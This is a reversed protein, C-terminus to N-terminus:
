IYKISIPSRVSHKISNWVIAGEVFQNSGASQDVPIFTVKYSLRQNVASFVLRSPSVKVRMCPSIIVKVTYCSHADGVNTVTRTFSKTMNGSMTIAFAPYNLEAEPNSSVNSCSVQKQVITTVQANSYGLGCLYPIYDDAQIDYILGPNNAKCPNVHGAGVAFLSAPLEREDQIPQYNLNIVDATTMIASKIAAPSWDPHASKLLTAIGSLHPCSMSTGSIVNFPATTTTITTTSDAYTPWAALISVGPGIIDPKLIGPSALNPGRSSFSSVQPASKYGIVTGRFIITAVPSATSNMYNLIALAQKYDVYSAPLVHTDALISSGDIRANVLIMAAGGAGKVEQGKAVRPIGGGKLCIVVKGKVDTNNLSGPACFMANKSRNLGPYVLPLLSKTFNKPQFVSEGDLLVNNGLKVTATVKRDVTSAGVTLIWPAENSLSANFPGSNGASCSVFIGKRIAAYAGIAVTDNYFPVSEGGLSLSLVDVGEEIAADMAALIDSEGCSTENCVKYMAIHAFPAMGVATGYDNGLANAGEVFNGGATSATHTGHGGDDLPSGTGGMSGSVFNRAGILKNNCGPVECKGKWKAPPPAVGTDNFSPHCPTIGTDLVGIIVGKGYNSGRWFGFNQHLGLFNPTHTTHLSLLRQPRASIAGDQKEIERAQEATLTAAFGNIVNRYMYVMSPKEDFDQLTTHLFTNYRSELDETAAVPHDTIPPRLHVIYTETQKAIALSLNFITNFSCLLMIMLHKCRNNEM